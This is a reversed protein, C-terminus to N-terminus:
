ERLASFPGYGECKSMCMWVYNTGLRGGRGQQGGGVQVGVVDGHVQM